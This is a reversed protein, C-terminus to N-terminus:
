KGGQNSLSRGSWNWPDRMASMEWIGDLNTSITDGDERWPFQMEEAAVRHCSKPVRGRKFPWKGLNEAM